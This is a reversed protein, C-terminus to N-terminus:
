LELRYLIADEVPSRYYGKRRGASVFGCGEYLGRAHALSERVELFIGKAHRSRAASILRALLRKGWGQGQLPRAVVINELECDEGGLSGVVFGQVTRDQGELIFALRLPANQDFIQEYNTKPWHAASALERELTIMGPIDATTAPRVEIPVPIPRVERLPSVSDFKGILKEEVTLLSCRRDIRKYEAQNQRMFREYSGRSTWFDLTVYRLPRERDRILESRIHAPNRRFLRVWDGSPGYAKEFARRRGPRVRLEWAIIFPLRHYSAKNGANM